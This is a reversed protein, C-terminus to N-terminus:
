RRRGSRGRRSAARRPRRSRLRRNAYRSAFCTVTAPTGVSASRIPKTPSDPVLQVEKITKLRTYFRVGEAAMGSSFLLAEDGGELAALVTEAPAYTPNRDRAYDFGRPYANDPDRLFTTSPQLPPIVGGTTPDDVGAAQALLTEPRLGM